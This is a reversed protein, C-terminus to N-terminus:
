YKFGFELRHNGDRETAELDAQYQAKADNTMASWVKERKQNLVVLWTRQLLLVVLTLACISILIKNGRYYYPSDDTRYIQSGIVSGVQVLVNYTATILARKKVSFSIESM